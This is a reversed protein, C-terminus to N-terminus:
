RAILKKLTQPVLRTGHPLPLFDTHHMENKYHDAIGAFTLAQM